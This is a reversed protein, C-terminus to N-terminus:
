ALMGHVQVFHRELGMDPPSTEFMNLQFTLMQHAEGLPESVLEDCVAKLTAMSTGVQLQDVFKEVSSWLAAKKNHHLNAELDDLEFDDFEAFPDAEEEDEEQWSRNSRRTLQLSGVTHAGHVPMVPGDFMDSYDEDDAETYKQLEPNESVAKRGRLSSNRSGPPTRM